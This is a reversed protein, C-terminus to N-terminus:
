KGIHMPMVIQVHDDRDIPNAYLVIPATPHAFSFLVKDGESHSLAAALYRPSVGIQMTGSAEGAFSRSLNFTGKHSVTLANDLLTLTVVPFTKNDYAKAVTECADLVALRDVTISAKRSKPMMNEWAPYQDKPDIRAFLTSSGNQIVCLSATIALRTETEPELVRALENLFRAPVLVEFDEGDRNAKTTSLRFGDTATLSLVNDKNRIQVLTLVPRSEDTGASHTTKYILRGFQETDFRHLLRYPVQNSGAITPFEAAELNDIHISKDGSRIMLETDFEVTLTEKNGFAKLGTRLEAVSAAVQGSTIVVAEDFFQGSVDLDTGLASVWGGPAADFLIYKLIPLTTKGKITFRGAKAVLDKFKKAQMHFKM